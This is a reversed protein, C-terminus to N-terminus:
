MDDEGQCEKCVMGAGEPLYRGCCVCSDALRLAQGHCIKRSTQRKPPMKGHSRDKTREGQAERIGCGEGEKGRRGRIAPPLSVHSVPIRSIDILKPPLVNIIYTEM